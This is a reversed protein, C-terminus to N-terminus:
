SRYEMVIRIRHFNRKAKVEIIVFHCYFKACSEVAPRDDCTYFHTAILYDTILDFYPSIEMSNSIRGFDKTFHAVSSSAIRICIKTCKGTICFQYSSILGPQQSWHKVARVVIEM